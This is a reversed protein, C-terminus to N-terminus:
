ARLSRREVVLPVDQGNRRVTLTITTGAAGHIRALTGELGLSAVPVGDIAIVRDGFGIGADFAGSGTLVRTVRLADGDPYLDLGIGVLEIGTQDDTDVRTLEITIPGLVAGDTATMAGELKGYYGEARIRIALPGASIGTLEFTGDPRTVTGPDAPLVGAPAGGSMFDPRPLWSCVISANGIPAHDDSAIVKGRLIAGSGLVIRVDTAGAAAQTLTGRAHDRASALLDYDGRPVRIAFRGQPDIVSQTAVAVRAAGARRRAVLTYMPIPAGRGDVVQGAIPLGTDLTLEVNHSGGLVNERVGRVHDGAEASLDYSAHDVDPLTFAGDPGTTAAVTAVNGWRTSPSGRVVAGEIPAGRTDRVHGTITADRPPIHGLQIRLAKLVRVGRDVHGWGSAEGARAELMADDAAQFTFRGGAGTKWETALSELAADGTPSGLWRVRAGVVPAGRADVVLGQYDVAPYLLLTVGHIGQGRALTVRVGSHGVEPTYPLYGAATIASLVFSGGSPTLVFTGDSSTQFTSAGAEGLFTLEANAVGEHTVGDLVRGDIVDRDPTSAADLARARHPQAAPAPPVAATAKARTAETAVAPATAHDGRPLWWAALGGGLLLLLLGVWRLSTKTKVPAGAPL